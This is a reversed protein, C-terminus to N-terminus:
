ASGSHAGQPEREILPIWLRFMTGHGPQSSAEIEGGHAALIARAIALGMGSGKGVSKGKRGRYFKEFIHPLEMPHIGPGNDEAIFILRGKVRRSRLTIPTGPPCYRAANELLHRLVRGILHADFWVTVDPEEVDIIVKHETLLSRSEEVAMELVTRTNHPLLHVELVNADIQAMEIAAGILTDLRASEEDVVTALEHRTQYDLGDNERLTSAAARISTLPTRLEHTLSDILASRLRESERTAELHTSTEIALARTLAIAVHASVATSVERSLTAPRWALAGASRLGLMLEIASFGFPPDTASQGKSLTRLSECLLPPPVQDTGYFQNQEHVYLVVENLGFVRRVLRPLENALGAPDDYLMMEQSLNYLREVDERRQEAQRAQRRGLEAVRSAVFSSAAFALMAVYEQVGALIFTHFPLLFYFDFLIACVLATTLALTVGVQTAAWVVLTLYVMGATTSSADFRVLLFTTLTVAAATGFWRFVEDRQKRDIM